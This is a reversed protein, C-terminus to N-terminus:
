KMGSLNKSNMEASSRQMIMVSSPGGNNGGKGPSQNLQNQMSRSLATNYGQQQQQMSYPTNGYMQGGGQGLSGYGGAQQHHVGGYDESRPYSGPYFQQGTQPRTIASGWHPQQMRQNPAWYPQGPQQKLQGQGFSNSDFAYPNMPMQQSQAPSRQSQTAPLKDWMRLLQEGMLPDVEQQWLIFYVSSCRGTM